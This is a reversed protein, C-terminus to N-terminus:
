AHVEGQLPKLTILTRQTKESMRYTKYNGDYTRFVVDWFHSTNGFNKKPSHDHHHFHYRQIYGLYGTEYVKLHLTYHVWEYSYHAIALGAGVSALIQLDRTLLLLPTLVVPTVVYMMLFGANLVRHDSMDQHHYQHFSGWFYNLLKTPYNVHYLFRHIVYELFTWYLVGSGILAATQLSSTSRSLSHYLFFTILPLFFILLHVPNRSAFYKVLLPYDQIM